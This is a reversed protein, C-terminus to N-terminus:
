VPVHAFKRMRDKIVKGEDIQLCCNSLNNEM